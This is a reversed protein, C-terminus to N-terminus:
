PHDVGASVDHALSVDGSATVVRAAASADDTDNYLHFSLRTAGARSAVKIGSAALAAHAGPRDISVIASDSPPLDVLARFHNAVGVAHEHIAAVGIDALLELAPAAGAWSLWAPSTDFRRADAALRLPPGYISNWRDAGAYWNAARPVLWDGAENVSLFGAGRPCCQWKYAGCSTVDIARANIPLWGAAQTVDLYTRAEAARAVDVLASLDLVRGDASQVLSVAVLDIGPHVSDLLRDLPVMDVRLREDVLFPFLVSTFDEEACLVRAGDPLSSAVLGSVISSQAVIGIHAADTGIIRAYAARARDVDPDFSAPDTRGAQWETIRARLVDVSRAPPLGVSATNLYGRAGPFESAILAHDVGRTDGLHSDGPM